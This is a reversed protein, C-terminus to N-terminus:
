YFMFKRKQFLCFDIGDLFEIRLESNNKIIDFRYNYKIGDLVLKVEKRSKRPIKANVAYTLGTVYNEALLKNKILTDTNYTENEWYSITLTCITSDLGAGLFIKFDDQSLGPKCCLFILGLILIRM